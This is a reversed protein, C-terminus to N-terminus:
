VETVTDTSLDQRDGGVSFFELARTLNTIVFHHDAGQVVCGAKTSALTDLEAPKGDTRLTIIPESTDAQDITLTILKAM